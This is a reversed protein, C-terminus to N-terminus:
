VSKVTILSFRARDRKPMSVYDGGCSGGSARLAFRSGDDSEITVVVMAKYLRIRKRYGHDGESDNDLPSTM